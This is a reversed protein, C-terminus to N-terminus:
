RCPIIAASYCSDANREVRGPHRLTMAVFTAM